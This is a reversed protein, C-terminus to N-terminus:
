QSIIEKAVAVAAYTLLSVYLMFSGARYLVIKLKLRKKIIKLFLGQRVKNAGPSGKPRAQRRPAAPLRQRVV